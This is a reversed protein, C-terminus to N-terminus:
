VFWLLILPNQICVAKRTADDNGGLGDQYKLGTNDVNCVHLVVTAACM